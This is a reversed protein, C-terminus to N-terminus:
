SEDEMRGGVSKLNQERAMFTQFCKCCLVGSSIGFKGHTYVAKEAVEPLHIKTGCSACKPTHELEYREIEEISPLNLLEPLIDICYNEFDLQQDFVQSLEDNVKVDQGFTDFLYVNRKVINETVEPSVNYKESLTDFTQDHQYCDSLFYLADVDMWIPTSPRQRFGIAKELLINPAFLLIFKADAPKVEKRMNISACSRLLDRAFEFAREEGFQSEMIKEVKWFWEDEDWFVDDIPTFKTMIKPKPTFSNVHVNKTPLVILRLVRDSAMAEWVNLQSLVGYKGFTIACNWGVYSNVINITYAKSRVKCEHDSILASIVRLLSDQFELSLKGIDMSSWSVHNNTLLNEFVDLSAFTFDIDLSPRNLMSRQAKLTTTKGKGKAGIQMMGKNANDVIKVFATRLGLGRWDKMQHVISIINSIDALEDAEFLPTEPMKPMQKM